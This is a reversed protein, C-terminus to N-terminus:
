SCCTTEKSTQATCLSQLVPNQYLWLPALPVREMVTQGVILGYVYLVNRCFGRYSEDDGSAPEMLTAAFDVVGTALAGDTGNAIGALLSEDCRCFFFFVFNQLRFVSGEKASLVRPASSCRQPVAM